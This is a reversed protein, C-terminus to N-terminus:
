APPDGLENEVEDAHAEVRTVLQDLTETTKAALVPDNAVDPHLLVNQLGDIAKNAIDGVAGPLFAGAATQGIDILTNALAKIDFSM